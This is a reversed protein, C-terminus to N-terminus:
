LFNDSPLCSTSEELTLQKSKKMRKPSYEHHVQRVLFVRHFFPELAHIYQDPRTAIVLVESNKAVHERCRNGIIPLLETHEEFLSRDYEFIIFSHYAEDLITLIQFATLARRIVFRDSFRHMEPLICPYNGCLYLILGRKKTVYAELAETLDGSVAILLSFTGPSLSVQPLLSVSMAYCSTLVEWIVTFSVPHFHFFSNQINKIIQSKFNKHQFFPTEQM